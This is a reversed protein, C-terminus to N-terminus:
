KGEMRARRALREGAKCKIPNWPKVKILVWKLKYKKRSNNLINSKKAFPLIYFRQFLHECLTKLAKVCTFIHHGTLMNCNGVIVDNSFNM